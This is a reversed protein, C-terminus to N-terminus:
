EDAEPTPVSTVHGHACTRTEMWVSVIPAGCEVLHGSADVSMVFTCASM